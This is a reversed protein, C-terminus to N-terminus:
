KDEEDDREGINFHLTFRLTEALPSQRGQRPALYAFDLGMSTYRVGLGFTFYQRFGKERSEHFYGARASFMNNYWYEAGVSWIFERLEESFGGPADAFSGFVGSILPNNPRPGGPTLPADPTPTMLKNVDVALTLKNYPDPNYTMATGFKLNTSIFERQNATSYSIKPGLNTLTAGWAWNFDNGGLNLDRNYYLGIDGGVTVGARGQPGGPGPLGVNGSLNSYILRVAISGSLHDSFKQAFSPAFGFERPTFDIIPQANPDTFNIDGLNSYQLGLGFAQTKNIQYYGTLYGFWMDNLGLARFWPTYSISAGIKKEAFVLKAPNWFTANVDPSTAVGVDGMGAARADPTLLLFPVASSPARLAQGSTNSAGVFWVITAALLFRKSSNQTM